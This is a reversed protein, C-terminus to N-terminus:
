RVQATDRRTPVVCSPVYETKRPAPRPTPVGNQHRTVVIANGVPREGNPDSPSNVISDRVVLATSGGGDFNLAEFAGLAIMANALEELTMGISSKQRGDVVVFYVTASDRSVGIATRPHRERSFRPVTGEISDALLAVNKGAEVIRPWGGVLTRIPGHHPALRAVISVRDGPRLRETHARAPGNGVLVHIHESGIAPPGTRGTSDVRYFATDRKGGVKLLPVRIGDDLPATKVVLSDSWRTLLSLGGAAIANVALLPWEGSPTRVTGELQFRELLPVRAATIGFQTHVNDFADFPSDTLTVAKVIEGDVVVNSETAGTGGRLDFFDANMVAVVDVGETRLRRAIASPRERGFLRDCARVGRIALEPRRLDIELVNIRWPGGPSTVRRHTVGPLIQRTIVSDATAVQSVGRSAPLALAVMALALVPFGKNVGQARYELTSALPRSRATVNEERTAAM